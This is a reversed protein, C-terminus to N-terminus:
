KNSNIPPEAVPRERTSTENTPKDKVPKDKIPKEKVPKEKVNREENMAPPETKNVKLPKEQVPTTQEVTSGGGRSEQISLTETKDTSTEISPKRQESKPKDNKEDSKKDEDNKQTAKAKPAPLQKQTSKLKVDRTADKGIDKLPPTVEYEDMQSAYRKFEESFPVVNAPLNFDITKSAGIAEQPSNFLGYTLIFRKQTNNDVIRFYNFKDRDHTRANLYDTIVEHESVNMVQVTWKDGNTKIFRSDKFEAPYNRMDRIVADFSIPKVMEITEQPKHNLLLTAPEVSIPNDINKKTQSQTPKVASAIWVLMTLGGAIAAMLLWVTVKFAWSRYATSLSHLM